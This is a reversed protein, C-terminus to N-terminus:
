RPHSASALARPLTTGALREARAIAAGLEIAQSSQPPLRALLAKWHVVATRFDRAEYAASGAMELAQPHAPDLALAQAVLEAPRGALTGGQAMGLADAYECWLGPDNALKPQALAREYAAVADAFQSRTALERALLVWARGDRPHREAHARLREIGAAASPAVDDATRLALPDGLLLYLACALVSVVITLAIAVNRPSPRPAM